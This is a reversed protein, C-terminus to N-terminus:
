DNKTFDAESDFTRYKTRTNRAARYMFIFTLGASIISWCAISGYYQISSIFKPLKYFGDQFPISSDQGAKSGFPNSNELWRVALNLSLNDGIVVRTSNTGSSWATASVVTKEDGNTSGIAILNISQDVDLHSDHVEGRLNFTLPVFAGGKEIYNLESSLPIRCSFPADEHIYLQFLHYLEDTFGITCNFDESVGYKLSLPKETEQCTPFPAYIIRDKDDFKHEGNDIQRTICELVIEQGREYGKIETPVEGKQDQPYWQCAVLPALVLAATIKLLKM